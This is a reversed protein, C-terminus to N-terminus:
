RGHRELIPMREDQLDFRDGHVVIPIQAAHGGTIDVTAPVLEDRGKWLWESTGGGQRIPEPLDRPAAKLISLADILNSKGSANPGILVNLPELSLETTPVM